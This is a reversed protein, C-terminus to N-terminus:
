QAYASLESYINDMATQVLVTKTTNMLAMDVAQYSKWASFYDMEGIAEIASDLLAGLDEEGAVKPLTCVFTKVVGINKILESDKNSMGNSVGAGGITKELDEESLMNNLGGLMKLM